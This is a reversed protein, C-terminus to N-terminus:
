ILCDSANSLNCKAKHIPAVIQLYL